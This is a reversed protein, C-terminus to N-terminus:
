ARLHSRVFFGSIVSVLCLIAASGYISIKQCSSSLQKNDEEIEKQRVIDDFLKKRLPDIKSLTQWSDMGYVGAKGGDFPEFSVVRYAKSNLIKFHNEDNIELIPDQIVSHTDKGTKSVWEKHDLNDFLKQNGGAWYLNEDAILNVYKGWQDNLFIKGGSPACVINNRFILTNNDQETKGIDIQSRLNLAFVNNLVKNDRGYHQAFGSSKCRYVLNNKILIDSSGEDLYIGFGDTGYSYVDHIVNNSIVTGESKGLTYIGGMDSLGGWGIHHIHNYLVKNRKSPSEGFGWVWGVSVGTYYFDAIDNHTIQCDSAKFVAIGVASPLTRGGEHIICNNVIINKTLLPDDNKLSGREGIKIGGAGLDHLYCSDMKSSKCAKQFWIANLGTHCVEVGSFSINEVYDLLVAAGKSAVAQQPEEGKAPMRYNSYSLTLDQIQVNKIPTSESGTINLLRDLVPIVVKTNELTEGERPCYYIIKNKSDYFFEGPVDLFSIDNEYYLQSTNQSKFYNRKSVSAGEITFSNNKKDISLVKRRSMDWYHLISVRVNNNAPLIKDLLSCDEKQLIVTQRYIDNRGEIKSEKAEIPVIYADSNPTRALIARKGNVFSQEVTADEDYVDGIYVSWFGTNDNRSFPPLEIGGSIITKGMGEGRIILKGNIGNWHKPLVEIPNSIHYVGTGIIIEVDERGANKLDGIKTIAAEITALPRARTGTNNDEGTKSVYIRTKGAYTPMGLFIAVVLLIYKIKSDRRMAVMKCDKKGKIIICKIWSEKM